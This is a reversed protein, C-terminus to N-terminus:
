KQAKMATKILGGQEAAGCASMLVCGAATLLALGRNVWKKKLM